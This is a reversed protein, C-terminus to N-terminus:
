VGLAELFISVISVAGVGILMLMLRTTTSMAIRKPSYSRYEIFDVVCHGVM